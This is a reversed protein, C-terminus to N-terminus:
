NNCGLQAKSPSASRGGPFREPFLSEYVRRLTGEQNGWHYLRRMQQVRSRLAARDAQLFAHVADRLGDINISPPVVIGAGSGRVLPGLERLDSAIVPVGAMWYEFLKNPMCYDYSLCSNAILCFGADASATYSLLMDPPVAHRWRVCQSQRAAARVRAELPGEGMFVIVAERSDTEQFAELLLEIGRGPVLLGQYLFLTTSDPVNFEARLSHTPQMEVYIPCNLVVAPRPCRYANAYWDAISDSVVVTADVFRLLFREVLKSAVRRIGRLATTETELEHPDYILRAQTRWKLVVCLPLVPLSHCNICAVSEKAWARLVRSSWVVTGIIKRFLDGGAIRAVRSISRVSDIRESAPLGAAAIGVLVIRDFIGWSGVAATEKLIRSEHTMTSPYIHLNIMVNGSPFVRVAWGTHNSRM